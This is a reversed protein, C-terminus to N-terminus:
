DSYNIRVENIDIGSEVALDEIKTLSPEDGGLRM